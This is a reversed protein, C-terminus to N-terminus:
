VYIRHYEDIKEQPIENSFLLHEYLYSGREVILDKLKDTNLKDILGEITNSYEGLWKYKKTKNKPMFDIYDSLVKGCYTLSVYVTYGYYQEPSGIYSIEIKDHYTDFFKAEFECQQVFRNFIYKCGEEGLLKRDVVMSAQYASSM